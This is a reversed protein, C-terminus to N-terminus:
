GATRTRNRGYAKHRSPPKQSTRPVTTIVEEHDDLVRLSREHIEITVIRGAHRLGVQVTQGIVQTSGRASARRQVRAPRHDLVPPPGPLRAGQLRARQGPTLTLSQTKILVGDLAVHALDAELRLTVRRGAHQQGVSVYGGAVSVNGSANVTRNIEVPEGAVLHGTTARAPPPGAPRAGRHRLRDLDLSTLRSPLTKLHQGDLALHVTTTDIWLTVVRGAHQPGLWFQQGAIGLNGSTPVIRDVEVADVEHTTAKAVDTLEGASAAAPSSPPDRDAGSPAGHDEASQDGLQQEPAPHNTDRPTSHAVTAVPALEPPRWLGLAERQEPPIPAFHQAPTHMERSQHPRDTNYDTRWADVAAQADALSDFPGHADLLETQLTQHWREVKGTTTPSRVKTFLQDIGNHRCIQEFLVEAPRPRLFRGTFQVGNDTLVQEPVGYAALAEVFASCVARSTARPVVMAIVCYRSHDDIGSVLKAERVGGPKTADRIMVSGTADLQWLQMPAAREWRKYDCRRRKRPAAPVFGHRVLMRDVSSRSPVPEVGARHLEYVLRRAGWRPHARRLECVKAEVDAALQWPHTRPRHSRDQLASLGGERYRGIWAYVTKRAVGYREAVEVVPVGASLVEMVAHYRQEVVSLEVLL